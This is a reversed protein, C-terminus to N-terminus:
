PTEHLKMAGSGIASNTGEYAAHSGHALGCMRHPFVFLLLCARRDAGFAALSHTIGPESEQHAPRECGENCTESKSPKAVNQSYTSSDSYDRLSRHRHWGSVM